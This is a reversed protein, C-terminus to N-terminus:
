ITDILEWNKNGYWDYTHYIEIKDKKDFYLENTKDSNFHYVVDNIKFEHDLFEIVNNENWSFVLVCLNSNLNYIEYKLEIKKDEFDVFLKNKSIFDGSSM